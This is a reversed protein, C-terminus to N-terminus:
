VKYYLQIVEELSYKYHKKKFCSIIQSLKDYDKKTDISLNIESVDHDYSFNLINFKKQNAYFYSTVHELHNKSSFKPFISSYTKCNVIEVGQGKPFTRPMVNTIIDTDNNIQLIAKNVLKGDLLPSDACVRVFFDLNYIQIIDYFRSAVNSLNGAYFKLGHSKCYNIIKKDKEEDSTAIIIPMDINKYSIQDVLYELVPKGNILKLVKNPLRSSSMRAQIITAINM